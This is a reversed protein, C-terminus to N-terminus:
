PNGLAKSGRMKERTSKTTGRKKRWLGEGGGLGDEMTPDSKWRRSEALVHSRFMGESKKVGKRSSSSSNQLTLAILPM